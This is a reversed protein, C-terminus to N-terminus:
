KLKMFIFKLARDTSPSAVQLKNNKLTSNFLCILQNFLAVCLM